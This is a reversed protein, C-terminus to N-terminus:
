VSSQGGPLLGQVTCEGEGSDPLFFFNHVLEYNLGHVIQDGECVCVCVCVCVHMVQFEKQFGTTNSYGVKQGMVQSMIIRIDAGMMETEGCVVLESLSDHVFM